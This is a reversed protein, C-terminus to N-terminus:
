ALPWRASSLTPVVRALEKRVAAAAPREGPDRRLTSGLLQALPALGPRKSLAVLPPPSGDDAVHMAIQAMESDAQFLVKGTLAEFALCGFAYVDAKAPSADAGGGGEDLAGWVEPAGYPGTACGPRLHRGALGFDVLVAEEGRRLIVNAPKLDLHVIGVAHMAVLGGLVDDLAAAAKAVDLGRSEILHELTRGEVLEMVLIPKPKSGADFTVFRALNPHQPLAILAGAEERFLKLFEAESLSRAASASYEPVKLAFREADTEGKEEVRTVVFVTGAGGAGLSRVVHFGGLTRRAPLWAPLAENMRISLPAPASAPAQSPLDTLRWVIESVLKGIAKPIGMLLHDLSSAVVHDALVKDAGSM